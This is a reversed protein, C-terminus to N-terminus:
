ALLLSRFHWAIHGSLLPPVCPCTAQTISINFCQQVLHKETLILILNNAETRSIQTENGDVGQSELLCSAKGDNPKDGHSEDKM